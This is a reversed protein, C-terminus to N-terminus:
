AALKVVSTRSTKDKIRLKATGYLQTVRQEVRASVSTAPDFVVITGDLRTGWNHGHLDNLVSNKRLLKLFALLSRGQPHKDLIHNTLAYTGVDSLETPAARLTTMHYTVMFRRVHEVLVGTDGWMEGINHLCEMVCVFFKGHDKLSYVKLSHPSDITMAWAAYKHWADNGRGVKVVRDDHEPHRLVTSYCGSSIEVFGRKKLAAIYTTHSYDFRMDARKTTKPTGGARKAIEALLDELSILELAANAM